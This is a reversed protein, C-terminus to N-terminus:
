DAHIPYIHIGTSERIILRHPLKERLVRVKGKTILEHLMQVSRYGIEYTPQEITTLKPIFMEAMRINDFGIVSVQGPVTKGQDRLYSITGMAFEDSAAFVATLEPHRAFLRAAAEYADSYRHEAYEVFPNCHHLGAEDLARLFGEYRPQGSITRDLPMNIMGINRHGSVILHRVAEFAAQEDDIDVSPINYEPANTSALVFPLHYREMEEYYEKHLSDSAFIFGDVQKEFFSRVYNITRQKDRDTNCIMLSHNLRVAADQMGRILGTFYPNEIDPIMVGITDSKKYILGRAFANPQYQLAEIAKLVRDRKEVTVTDPANMVRSVTSISVNAYKAVDRITAKM